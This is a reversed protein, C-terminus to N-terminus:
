GPLAYPTVAVVASVPLPGYVHPFPAPAGPVDEWRVPSGAAELAAVDLELLVLPDSVDAYFARAVGDVQHPESAHVFGVQQLTLGRTSVEYRGPGQAREWDGALALHLVTAPRTV